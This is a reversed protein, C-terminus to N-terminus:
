TPTSACSSSRGSVSGTRRWCASGTTKGAGPPGVFLEVPAFPEDGSVLGGLETALAAEIAAAAAIRRPGRPVARAVRVALERDLGTSLLQAVLPDPREATLSAADHRAGRRAAIRLREFVGAAAPTAGISPADDSEVPAPRRASTQRAAAVTVEVERLGVLGRLGRAAVLQTAVIDAEAGHAVCAAAVADEVTQGRFRTTEM